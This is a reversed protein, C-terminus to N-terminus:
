SCGGALNGGLAAVEYFGSGPVYLAILPSSSYGTFWVGNRDAIPNGNPNFGAYGAAILQANGPGGAIWVTTGLSSYSYIIPNGHGDSGVVMSQFGPQMFWDTTSGTKTDLKVITNAAGSPVASTTTGYAAGGDVLQWYGSATIQNAAGSYQLLWLGPLNTEEAYVGENKVGVIRWSRGTGVQTIAGGPVAVVYIGSQPAFAYRSGDPTVLSYDV